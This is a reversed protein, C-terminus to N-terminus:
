GAEDTDRLRAEALDIDKQIRRLVEDNIVRQNRLKIITAREVKLAEHSLREYESSFLRPSVRGNKSGAAALQQIRDEYETRLRDVINAPISESTGLQDIRALAAQNAKLRATNEEREAIDDGTIGLARIIPPLSLGQLVLTALIIIFTLFIIVERGPFPANNQTNLPLALAAALSVVGRMGTWAVIAVHRWSPYPDNERLQKFLLRPLYTAPFVWAIRIAIVALSMVFALCMIHPVSRGALGHLVEPLQLGILIFIFGNLLFQLMEWVPGAQLRTRATMYEPAHWGNHLGATVVALVGSVGLQEAGLYAAFPTLLSITIEIPPDEIRKQVAATVYGVLLGVLIGGIAVLFFQVAAHQWSLAGAVVAAVGFRYAVLATADNVLSEGELITVIRRPVHLRQAVATAAIADPPSIIAGLVFGAALPFNPILRHALFGTAITTFLVLGVALLVIPRLNQQFDRWSTFLAAPYILPPLFVLFIIDPSLRVQPLGPILALLLGGLVQLIPTPVPVKRGLMTLAAVALLLGLVVELGQLM